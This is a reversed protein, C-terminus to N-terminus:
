HASRGREKGNARLENELVVNQCLMMFARLTARTLTRAEFAHPALERWIRREDASLSRPAAFTEVPSLETSEAPKVFANSRHGTDGESAQLVDSKPKRGSGPRQGGQLM